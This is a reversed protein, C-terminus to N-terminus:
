SWVVYRISIFNVAEIYLSAHRWTYGDSHCLVEYKECIIGAISAAACSTLELSQITIMCSCVRDLSLMNYCPGSAPADLKYLFPYLLVSNRWRSQICLTLRSCSILCSLSDFFPQLVQRQLGIDGVVFSFCHFIDFLALSFHSCGGVPIPLPMKDKREVAKEASHGTATEAVYEIILLRYFIPDFLICSLNLLEM